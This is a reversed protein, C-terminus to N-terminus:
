KIFYLFLSTNKYREKKQKEEETLALDKQAVFNGYKAM